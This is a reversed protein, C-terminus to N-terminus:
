GYVDSTITQFWAEAYRAEAERQARPADVPSTGGAGEIDALQGNAPRYM